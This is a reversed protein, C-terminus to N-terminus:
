QLPAKMADFFQSFIVGTRAECASRADAIKKSFEFEAAIREGSSYMGFLSKRYEDTILIGMGSAKAARTQRDIEEQVKVRAADEGAQIAKNRESQWTTVDPPACAFEDQHSEIYAAFQNVMALTFDAGLRKDNRLDAVVQRSIKLNDPWTKYDGYPIDKGAKESEVWEMLGARTRLFMWQFQSQHESLNNVEHRALLAQLSAQREADIATRAELSLKNSRKALDRLSAAQRQLLNANVAAARRQASLEIFAKEKQMELAAVQEALLEKQFVPIVTYVYGWSLLALTALQIALGIVQSWKGFRDIPAVGNGEIQPPAAHARKRGAFERPYRQM